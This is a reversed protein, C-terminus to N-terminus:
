KKEPEKITIHIHEPNNGAPYAGPRSAFFSYEGAKNTKLWGRLYGHRKAWGTENGRTPYIGSANTQYLYLIVGPAVTKGDAKFVKGTILIKKGNEFYAPLTDASLLKDFLINNEYIAECGECPGGVHQQATQGCASLCLAISCLSILHNM